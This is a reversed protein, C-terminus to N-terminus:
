STRAACSGTTSSSATATPATTTSASSRAARRQRSRRAAASVSTPATTCSTSTPSPTCACGTRRPSRATSPDRCPAAATAAPMPAAAALEKEALARLQAELRNREAVEERYRKEDEAKSAAASNRATERAGVLGSITNRQAEAKEELKTKRVLNAAAEARQKKVLDRLKQVEDRKVELLVKTAALGQMTALQADSVSDNLNMQETFTSPDEGRLLDGFARLGRDGQQLNEVTFQEVKAESEKLEAEGQKSSPWRSHRPQGPQRALKAQMQADRQQAVALLGRTTGLQNEATDLKGQAARLALVAATYEKTSGDLAKKADKAAANAEKKQKELDSKSDAISPSSVAVMMAVALLAATLSKRRSRIM